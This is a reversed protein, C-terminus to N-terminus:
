NSNVIKNEEDEKRAAEWGNEWDEYDRSEFDYPNDSSSDIDYCSWALYANYGEQYPDIYDYSM